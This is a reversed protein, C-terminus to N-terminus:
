GCRLDWGPDHGVDLILVVYLQDSAGSTDERWQAPHRLSQPLFWLGPEDFEGDTVFAVSVTHNAVHRDAYYARVRDPDGSYRRM